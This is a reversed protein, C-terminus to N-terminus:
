GASDSPAHDSAARQSALADNSAKVAACLVKAALLAENWDVDLGLWQMGNEGGSWVQIERRSTNSKRLNSDVAYDELHEFVDRLHKLWPLRADFAQIADRVPNWVQPAHELISAAARLRRLSIVLFHVDAENFSKLGFPHFAADQARPGTIRSHQLSVAWM